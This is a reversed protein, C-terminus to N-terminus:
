PGPGPLTPAITIETGDPRYTHWTGDPDHQLTFGAHVKSHHHECLLGSNDLDTPGGFIWHILHHVECWWHPADCGTFVCHGDRTIVATRLAPTVLRQTRGLDLVEGDPGLVLRALEPDCATWRARAASLM